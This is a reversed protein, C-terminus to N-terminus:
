AHNDKIEHDGDTFNKTRARTERRKTRSAMFMNWRKMGERRSHARSHIITPSNKWSVTEACFIRECFELHARDASSRRLIPTYPPPPLFPYIDWRMSINRIPDKSRGFTRVITSSLASILQKQQCIRFDESCLLVFYPKARPLNGFFMKATRAFLICHEQEYNLIKEGARTFLICDIQSTKTPLNKFKEASYICNIQTAETPLNRLKQSRPLVFKKKLGHLWFNRFGFLCQVV